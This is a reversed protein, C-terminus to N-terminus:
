RSDPKGLIFLNDGEKVLAVGNRRQNTHYRLHLREEHTALAQLDDFAYRIRALPEAFIYVDTFVHQLPVESSTGFIRLRDYHHIISECYRAEAAALDLTQWHAVLTEANAREEDKKSSRAREAYHNIVTVFIQDRGVFDRGTNVNGGVATGGGTNIETM